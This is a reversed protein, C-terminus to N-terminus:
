RHFTTNKRMPHCNPFLGWFRSEQCCTGKRRFTMTWYAWSKGSAEEFYNVSFFLPRMGLGLGSCIQGSLKRIPILHGDKWSRYSFAAGGMFTVLLIPDLLLVSRPVQDLRRYLVLAMAYALTSVLVAVVIRRLDPLSAFRWLSRYLGFGWFVCGQVVVVIFLSWVLSERNVDPISFNFRFHFALVWALGSVILDHVFVFAKKINM